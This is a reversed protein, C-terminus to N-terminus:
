EAIEVQWYRSNRGHDFIDYRRATLRYVLGHMTDPVVGTNQSGETNPLLHLLLAHSGEYAWGRDTEGM